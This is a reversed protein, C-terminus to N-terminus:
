GVGNAGDRASSAMKTVAEPLGQIRIPPFGVIDYTSSAIGIGAKEFEQLIFRSMTNKTDRIAHDRVLFRVTIELWNDTLRFYVRPKVSESVGYQRRLESLVDPTLEEEPISHHSAADLLIQEVKAHDAGYAIPMHMEEWIYPFARTYNYVPEDFIRANSVIVIRGTYQRSKVWMGPEDQQVAPPEGMEMITTQIFGLDIVDGRVGGMRIRDGVNFTRGRLIVFYGAVATIVKQLAFSLGATVLGFFTALRVPNDFWISILGIIVLVATALHTAQRFWFQIRDNRGRLFLGSLWRFLWMVLILVAIFVVSFLLKKAAVENVGVLQVGAVEVANHPGVLRVWGDM